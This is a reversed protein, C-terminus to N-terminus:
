AYDIKFKAPKHWYRQHIADALSVALYDAMLLSITNNDRLQRVIELQISDVNMDIFHKRFYQNMNSKSYGSYKGNAKGELCTINKQHLNWILYDKIGYTCTYSPKPYGAGYGLIMDIKNNNETKRIHNSIGHVWVILCNTNYKKTKKVLRLFPDLFEDKVVDVMHYFNNCNAQDKAIDLHDSKEWGNNIIASANLKKACAEVILSTNYDDGSYGHPAVLVTPHNGHIISIREM